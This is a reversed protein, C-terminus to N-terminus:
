KHNPWLIWEVYLWISTKCRKLIDGYMISLNLLKRARLLSAAYFRCKLAVIQPKLVTHIIKQKRYSCRDLITDDAYLRRSQNNILCYAHQPSLHQQDEKLNKLSVQRWKAVKHTYLTNWFLLRRFSKSINESWNFRKAHFKSFKNAIWIWM